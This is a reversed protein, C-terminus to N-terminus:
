FTRFPRLKGSRGRRKGSTRCNPPCGVGGVIRGKKALLEARGPRGSEAVQVFAGLEADDMPEGARELLARLEYMDIDGSKDVDAEAFVRRYDADTQLGLNKQVSEVKSQFTGTKNARGKGFISSVSARRSAQQFARM